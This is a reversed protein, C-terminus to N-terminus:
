EPSSRLDSFQGAGDVLVSVLMTENAHRFRYRLTRGGDGPRSDLLEVAQLPGKEVSRQALYALHSPTFRAALDPALGAPLKGDGLSAMLARVRATLAPDADAIAKPPADFLAPVYHAAILDAFKSANATASNALVVVTLGDEVYRCLQSRFGQWAGGHYIHRRGKVTDVFWGVGYPAKSGDNLTAATFSAARLRADLITDGYLAQDWRALDRATLYLSGDATTNLRPAVWA